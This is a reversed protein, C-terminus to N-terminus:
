YWKAICSRFILLGHRVLAHTLKTAISEVKAIDVDDFGQRLADAKNSLHLLGLVRESEPHLLPFLLSCHLNKWYALALAMGQGGRQTSAQLIRKKDASHDTVRLVKRRRWCSNVVFEKGEEVDGEAAPEPLAFSQDRPLGKAVLLGTQGQTGLLHMYCCGVAAGTALRLHGLSAEIIEDLNDSALLTLESDQADRQVANRLAQGISRAGLAGLSELIRKDSDTFATSFKHVLQLIGRVVGEGGQATQDVLPVSILNVCGEKQLPRKSSPDGRSGRPSQTFSATRAQSGTPMAQGEGRDEDEGGETAEAVSALRVRKSSKGLLGDGSAGDASHLAAGEAREVGALAVAADARLVSDVLRVYGAFRADRAVDPVILTTKSEVVFQLAQEVPVEEAKRTIPERPGHTPAVDSSPKSQGAAAAPARPAPKTRTYMTASGAQHNLLFIRALSSPVLEQAARAIRQVLADLSHETAALDMATDRLCAAKSREDDARMVRLRHALTQGLLECFSEVQM